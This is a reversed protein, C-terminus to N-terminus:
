DASVYAPGATPVPWSAPPAPLGPKPEGGGFVDRWANTWGLFRVYGYAFVAINAALLVAHGFAAHALDGSISLALLAIALWQFLVYVRPTVTRGQIKPTRAFPSKRGTILQRASDLVGALNVPLLVLNLAYVRLLDRFGYGNTKLDLGYVLYYPAATLPLWLISFRPDFPLFLLLMLGLNAIAPSILYHARILIEPLSPGNKLRLAHRVLDPMIILGGNSWRRRQIALSGFDPPTASWALREPHNHLTWGRRILDITSGTDEIVTRDQIFVPTQHGREEVFTQIDILAQHRLLANAGVWFAASFASSGQHCIYQLDTTAGATRELVGPADPFASYPTQAVAIRDDAQMIAMLKQAYDPSLISDADLTLLFDAGPVTLTAERPGCPELWVGNRRRGERFTGGILGIYANLNMAKNAAHSLNEYRKREFSTIPVDFLRALRAYAAEAADADAWDTHFAERTQRLEGTLRCIVRQRLCREAHTDGSIWEVAHDEIWCAAEEYLNSLRVVEVGPRVRRASRRALFASHEAKLPAAAAAFQGSLRVVEARAAALAAM